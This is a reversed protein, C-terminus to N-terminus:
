QRSRGDFLNNRVAVVHIPLNLSEQLRCVGLKNLRQTGQAREPQVVLLLVLLQYVSIDFM